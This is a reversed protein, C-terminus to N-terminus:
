AAAAATNIPVRVTSPNGKDAHPRTAPSPNESTVWPTSSRRHGTRATSRAVREGRKASVVVGTQPM